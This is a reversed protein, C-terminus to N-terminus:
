TLFAIAQINSNSVAYSAKFGAPDPNDRNGAKKAMWEGDQGEWLKAAPPPLRTARIGPVRENIM